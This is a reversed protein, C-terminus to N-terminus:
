RKYKSEAHFYNVVGLNFHNLNKRQEDHMQTMNCKYSLGHPFLTSHGQLLFGPTIMTTNNHNWWSNHADEDMLVTSERSGPISARPMNSSRPLDWFMCCNPKAAAEAAAWLRYLLQIPGIILALWGVGVFTDFPSKSVVPSSEVSVRILDDEKILPLFTPFHPLNFSNSLYICESHMWSLNAGLAFLSQNTQNLPLM